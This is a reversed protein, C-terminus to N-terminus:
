PYVPKRKKKNQQGEIESNFKIQNFTWASAVLYCITDKCKLLKRLIVTNIFVIESAILIEKKFSFEIGAELIKVALIAIPMIIVSKITLVTFTECDVNKIQHM